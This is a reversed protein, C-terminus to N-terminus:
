RNQTCLAVYVKVTYVSMKMHAYATYMSSEVDVQVNYVHETNVSPKVQM